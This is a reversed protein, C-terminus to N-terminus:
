VRGAPAASGVRTSKSPFDGVGTVQSSQGGDEITRGRDQTRRRRRVGLLNRLYRRGAQEVAFYTITALLLSATLMAATLALSSLPSLNASNGFPSASLLKTMVFQVFGHILYLSYSIEGLWVLARTNVFGAVYGTNGVAALILAPFLLIILLDAAGFHLLLLLSGLILLFVWDRTLRSLWARQRLFNYLLMGAIFEPLCRLLTTPGDWQNFDDKTWYALCALASLLVIAVAIKWRLSARFILPLLFPFVLYAMFEVSISWAPYNWSLESAKLGQLMFLNAIFASLSRAGQWPIPEITGTSAYEVACSALATGLFLALVFLHLPYLRAIRAFLFKLYNTSVEEVFADRYVHALVFGSLMFFLDVALYGKALLHTYNQPHLSPFYIVAYHYLVVWLAAMGRLPTLSQLQADGDPHKRPRQM